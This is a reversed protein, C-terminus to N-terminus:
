TGSSQKAFTLPHSISLPFRTMCSCFPSQFNHPSFVLYTSIRSRLHM